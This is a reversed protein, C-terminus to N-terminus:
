VWSKFRPQRLIFGSELQCTLCDSHVWESSSVFQASVPVLLHIKSSSLTSELPLHSPAPMQQCYGPPTGLGLGWVGDDIM